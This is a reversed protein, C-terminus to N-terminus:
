YLAWLTSVSTGDTTNYVKTVSLNLQGTPVSTLTVTSGDAMDVKLAGSGASGIWLARTQPGKTPTWDAGAGGTLTVSESSTFPASPGLVNTQLSAVYSGVVGGAMQKPAACGGTLAIAAVTVLATITRRLNM